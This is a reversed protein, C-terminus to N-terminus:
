AGRELLSGRQFGSKTILGMEKLGGERLLGDEQPRFNFLGGLPSLLAKRYKLRADAHILVHLRQENKFM